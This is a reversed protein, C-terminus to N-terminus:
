LSRQDSGDGAEGRPSAGRCGQGRMGTGWTGLGEACPRESRKRFGGAAGAPGAWMPAGMGLQRGRRTAGPGPELGGGVGREAPQQITRPAVKGRPLAQTGKLGQGHCRRAGAPERDGVGPGQGATREAGLDCARLARLVPKRDCSSTLAFGLGGAPHIAAQQFWCARSCCRPARSGHAAGSVGGLSAPRPRVPAWPERAGEGAGPARSPTRGEPQEQEFRMRTPRRCTAQCTNEPLCLGATGTGPPLLSDGAAVRAKQPPLGAGHSVAPDQHCGSCGAARGAVESEHSHARGADAAEPTLKHSAISSAYLYKIEM